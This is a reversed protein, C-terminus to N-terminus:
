HHFIFSDTSFVFPSTAKWIVNGYFDIEVADNGSLFTFTKNKTTKLDRVHTNNNVVDTINPITWVAKGNRDFISHANDLIIFENKHKDTVNTHVLVKVEDFNVPSIDVLKFTYINGTHIKI